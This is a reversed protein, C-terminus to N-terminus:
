LSDGEDIDLKVNARHEHVFETAISNIDVGSHLIADMVHYLLDTAVVQAGFGVDLKDQEILDALKELDRKLLNVSIEAEHKKDDYDFNYSESEAQIRAAMIQLPNKVTSIQSM